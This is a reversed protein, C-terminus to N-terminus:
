LVKEYLRFWKLHKYELGMDVTGIYRYGSKEYLKIAPINHESVDLRIAKIKNDRSYKEAFAMLQNGLGSKLYHPHVVLTRVVIVRSYDDGGEWEVQDYAKEPEHSLIVSAVIRNDIEVVFLIEEAIADEATQRVPYINKIWGPYNVTSLFHDNLDNYLRELEDLDEFRGKRIEM